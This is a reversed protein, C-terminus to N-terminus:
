EESGKNPAQPDAEPHRIPSDPRSGEPMMGHSGEPKMGHSGEGAKEAVPPKEAAGGTASKETAKDGATGSAPSAQSGPETKGEAALKKAEEAQRKYEEVARRQQELAARLRAIQRAHDMKVEPGFKKTLNLGVINLIQSMPRNEHEKQAYLETVAITWDLPKAKPPLAYNTALYSSPDFNKAIRVADIFGAVYGQQFMPGFREWGKKGFAAGAVGASGIVLGAVFATAPVGFCKFRRMM